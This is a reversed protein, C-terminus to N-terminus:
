KAESAPKIAAWTWHRDSTAVVTQSDFGLEDVLAQMEDLSLAARLSDDFLQESHPSGDSAYTEVLSQVQEASEPRM